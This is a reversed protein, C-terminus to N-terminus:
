GQTATRLLQASCVDSDALARYARARGEYADATPKTEIARSFAEVAKDFEGNSLHMEGILCGVDAATGDPLAQAGNSEGAPPVEEEEHYDRYRGELSEALKGLRPRKRKLRKLASEDGRVSEFLLHLDPHNESLWDKLDCHAITECLVSADPPKASTFADLAKKDGSLAKAFLYLGEGRSRLWRFADADGAMGHLIYFLEPNERELWALDQEGVKKDSKQNM